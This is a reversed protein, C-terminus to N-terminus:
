EGRMAAVLRELVSAFSETEHDPLDALVSELSTVLRAHAVDVTTRGARTLRLLASRADAPDPERRVLGSQELRSAYRTTATRDIGVEFAVRTASVPELRAIGSLVPYTTPDVGGLDGLLDAYLHARTSRRLLLDLAAEVRLAVDRTPSSM